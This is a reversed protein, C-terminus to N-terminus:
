HGSGSPRRTYRRLMQPSDWGALVRLDEASGGSALYSIAFARRFAHVGRFQLGAQHFRRTLMLRITNFQPPEGSRNLFLHPSDGRRKRLYRDIAKAAKYGLGVIREKGGKGKVRLTLAKLDLADLTLDCLEQGRIGTDYLTLIIATDRLGLTDRGQCAVLLRNVADPTYHPQIQEELKPAPIRDLPNDRREGEEVLWKYFARLAGYRNAVTGARNGRQYLSLLFERLHEASMAEPPPMGARDSFRQLQDLAQQYTWATKESRGSARLALVFGVALSRHGTRSDLSNAAGQSTLRQM